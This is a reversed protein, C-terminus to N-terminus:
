LPIGTDSVTRFVPQYFLFFFLTSLSGPIPISAVNMSPFIQTATNVGSSVCIINQRHYLLNVLVAAHSGKDDGQVTYYVANLSHNKHHLASDAVSVFGWRFPGRRSIKYRQIRVKTGIKDGSFWM